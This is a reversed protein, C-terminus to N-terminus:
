LLQSDVDVWSSREVLAHLSLVQEMNLRLKAAQTKNNSIPADFLCGSTWFVDTKLAELLGLFDSRADLEYVCGAPLGYAQDYHVPMTGCGLILTRLIHDLHLREAIRDLVVRRHTEFVVQNPLKSGGIYCLM